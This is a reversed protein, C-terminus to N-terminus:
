YRLCDEDEFEINEQICLDEFLRQEDMLEDDNMNKM